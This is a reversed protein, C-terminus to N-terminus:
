PQNLTWDYDFRIDFVGNMAESVPEPVHQQLYSILSSQSDAFDTDYSQFMESLVLEGSDLRVARSQMLYKEQFTDLLENNNEGNLVDTPMDPGGLTCFFLAFHTRPDRYLPRIVGNLIDDLSMDQMAVKVIDRRWRRAPLGRARVRTVRGDTYADIVMHLTAANYLNVWYAKAEEKNLQRPELLQLYDLYSQLKEKDEQSVRDYDFRSIGSPHDPLVYTQLIEQLPTHDVDIVGLPESDNWFDILKMEIASVAPKSLMLFSLMLLGLFGRKKNLMIRVLGQYQTDLWRQPTRVACSLFTEIQPREAFVLNFINLWLPKLSSAFFVRLLSRNRLKKVFFDPIRRNLIGIM